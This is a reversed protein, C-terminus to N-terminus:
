VTTKLLYCVSILLEKRFRTGCYPKEHYGPIRKHPTQRAPMNCHFSDTKTRSGTICRINRIWNIEASILHLPRRIRKKLSSNAPIARETQMFLPLSLTCGMETLRILWWLSTIESLGTSIVSIEMGTVSLLRNGRYYNHVCLYVQNFKGTKRDKKDVSVQISTTKDLYEVTVDHILPSKLCTVYGDDKEEIQSFDPEFCSRYVKAPRRHRIESFLKAHTGPQDEGPGFSHFKGKDSVACWSHGLDMKVWTTQEVTVPIGCARMIFTGLNCLGECQAVGAKYTEEITPYFPLGTNRYKMISTLQENLVRCAELPTQVKASDLLPVFREMMERRLKSLMETQARYPLIYKCFDDFSINRAWPKQWVEFALEINNVLFSSDLFSIDHVKKRNIRYGYRILSDCHSEVAKHDSFKSIDPRYKEGKPSLYYEEQSFHYPMNTILFRAAALKVSDNQYFTLVKELENRNNDARSLAKELDKDVPSTCAILLLISIGSIFIKKM